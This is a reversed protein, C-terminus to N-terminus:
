PPVVAQKNRESRNLIPDLRRPFFASANTV